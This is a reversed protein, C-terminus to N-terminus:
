IFDLDPIIKIIIEPQNFKPQFINALRKKIFVLANADLSTKAGITIYPSNNDDSFNIVKVKYSLKYQKLYNQLQLNLENLQETKHIVQNLPQSNILNSISIPKKASM